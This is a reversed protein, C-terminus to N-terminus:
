LHPQKTMVYYIYLSDRIVEQLVGDQVMKTVKIKKIPKWEFSEDGEDNWKFHALIQNLPPAQSMGQGKPKTSIGLQNITLTGLKLVKVKSWSVGLHIPGVQIIGLADVQQPYTMVDHWAEDQQIYIEKTMLRLFSM